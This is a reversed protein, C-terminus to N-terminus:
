AESGDGDGIADDRYALTSEVVAPLQGRDDDRGADGRYAYISEKIHLM